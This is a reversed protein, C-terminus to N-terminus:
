SCEAMIEVSVMKAREKPMIDEKSLEDHMIRKLKKKLRSANQIQWEDGSEEGHDICPNVVQLLDQPKRTLKWHYGEDDDDLLRQNEM